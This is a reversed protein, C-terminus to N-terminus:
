RSVITRKCPIGKDITDSRSGLNVARKQYSSIRNSPVYNFIHVAKWGYVSPWVSIVIRLTSYNSRAYQWESGSVHHSFNGCTSNDSLVKGWVEVPNLGWSTTYPVLIYRGISTAKDLELTGSADLITYDNCSQQYFTRAYNNLACALM